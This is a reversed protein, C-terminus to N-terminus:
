TSAQGARATEKFRRVRFRFLKLPEHRPIRAKRAAIEIQEAATEVGSIDPLLLGRRSGDHDEVIVGYIKPDLDEVSTPEPRELVDVSYTLLPLEVTSVPRFRPDRTAAGIANCIVEEALTSKEPRITGICGRLHGEITKICVFCASAKNLIAPLSISSDELTRRESIFTEVAARALAPLAREDQFKLSLRAGSEEESSLESKGSIDTFVAKTNM